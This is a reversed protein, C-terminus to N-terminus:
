NLKQGCDGCFNIKETIKVGCNPCFKIDTKKKEMGSIDFESKKSIVEVDDSLPKENDIIKNYKETKVSMTEKPNKEELFRWNCEGFFGGVPLIYFKYMVNERILYIKFDSTEIEIGGNSIEDDITTKLDSDPNDKIRDIIDVIDNLPDIEFLIEGFIYVAQMLDSFYAYVWLTKKNDSSDSDKLDAVFKETMGEGMNYVINTFGPILSRLHIDYKSIGKELRTGDVREIGSNSKEIQVIYILKKNSSNDVISIKFLDGFYILHDDAKTFNLDGGNLSIVYDLLNNSDQLSEHYIHIIDKEDNTMIYPVNFSREDSSDYIDEVLVASKLPYVWNIKKIDVNSIMNFQSDNLCISQIESVKNEFINTDNLLSKTDFVRDDSSYEKLRNYITSFTHSISISKWKRVRENELDLKDVWQYTIQNGIKIIKSFYVYLDYNFEGDINLMESVLDSLYEKESEITEKIQQKDIKLDKPDGSFAYMGKYMFIYVDLFHSYGVNFRWLAYKDLYKELFSQIINVFYKEDSINNIKSKYYELEAFYKVRSLKKSSPKIKKDISDIQDEYNYFRKLFLITFDILNVYNNNRKSGDNTYNASQQKISKLKYLDYIRYVYVKHFEIIKLINKKNIDCFNRIFVNVDGAFDLEIDYIEEYNESKSLSSMKNNYLDFQELFFDIISQDIDIWEELLEERLEKYKNKFLFM